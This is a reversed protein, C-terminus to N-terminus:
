LVDPAPSIEIWARNMGSLTGFFDFIAKFLGYKRDLADKAVQTEHEELIRAHAEVTPGLPKGARDSPGIQVRGNNRIRKVKGSDMTTMVYIKGQREAFWIPTKIAEGNKRFTFLNAYQQKYLISFPKGPITQEM